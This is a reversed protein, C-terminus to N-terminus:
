GDESVRGDRGTETDGHGSRDSSGATRQRRQRQEARGREGGLQELLRLAGADALGEARSDEADGRADVERRHDHEPGPASREDGARRCQEGPDHAARQPLRGELSRGEREGRDGGAVGEREAASLHSLKRQGVVEHGQGRQREDVQEDRAQQKLHDAPELHQLGVEGGGGGLRAEARDQGEEGEAVRPVHDRDDRDRQGNVLGM